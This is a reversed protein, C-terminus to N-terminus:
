YFKKNKVEMKKKLVRIMSLFDIHDKEIVSNRTIDEGMEDPNQKDWPQIHKLLTRRRKKFIFCM